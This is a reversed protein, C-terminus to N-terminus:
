QHFSRFTYADTTFQLKSNPTSYIEYKSLLTKLNFIIFLYQEDKCCYHTLIHFHHFKHLLSHHAENCRDPDIYLNIRDNLRHFNPMQSYWRLLYNNDPVCFLHICGYFHLWYFDYVLIHFLKAETPRQSLFWNVQELLFHIVVDKVQLPISSQPSLLSSIIGHEPKYLFIICFIKSFSFNNM